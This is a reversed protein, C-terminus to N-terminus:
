RRRLRTASCSICRDESIKATSSLAPSGCPRLGDDRSSRMPRLCRAPCSHDVAQREGQVPQPGGVRAPERRRGHDRLREAPDIGGAIGADEQVQDRALPQYGLGLPEPAVVRAPREPANGERDLVVDVEGPARRRRAARGEGVGGLAVGEDHRPQAGGPRQRDALGVEVLERGTEDPHARGIRRRPVREVRRDHRAARGRARRHRHRAAEDGEREAGVGGPRPPHRRRQVVDHPQLRREPRQRRLAHHRRAPREVGDRDERQRDLIGMRDEARRGAVVGCSGYERAPRPRAGPRSAAAGTSRRASGPSADSRRRRPAPAPTRRPTRPGPLPPPASRPPPSRARGRPRPAARRPAM